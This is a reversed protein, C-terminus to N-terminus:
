PRYDVLVHLAFPSSLEQQEVGAKLVLIMRKNNSIEQVVPINYRLLGEQVSPHKKKVIYPAIGTSLYLSFDNHVILIGQHSHDGDSRYIYQANFFDLIQTGAVLLVNQDNSVVNLWISIDGYLDPLDYIKATGKSKIAPFSPNQEGVEYM